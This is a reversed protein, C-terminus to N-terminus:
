ISECSGELKLKPYSFFQLSSLCSYRIGPTTLQPEKGVDPKTQLITPSFCLLLCKLYVSDAAFISTNYLM